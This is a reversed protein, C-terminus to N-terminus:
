KLANDALPRNTASSSDVTISEPERHIWPGNAPAMVSRRNSPSGPWKAIMSVHGHFVLSPKWRRKIDFIFLDMTTLQRYVTLLHSHPRRPLQTTVIARASRRAYSM